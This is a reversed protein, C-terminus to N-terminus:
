VGASFISLVAGVSGTPDTDGESCWRCPGLEDDFVAIPPRTSTRLAVKSGMLTQETRRATTRSKFSFA